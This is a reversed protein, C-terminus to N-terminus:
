LMYLKNTTNVNRHPRQRVVQVKHWRKDKDVYKLVSFGHRTCSM